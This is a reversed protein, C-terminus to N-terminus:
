NIMVMAGKLALQGAASVNATANGKVNVIEAEVSAQTTGKASFTLGELALETQAKISVRNGSITIDGAEDIEFKADGSQVAIPTGATTKVDVRDAGVRVITAGDATKLLVHQTTPELGDGLEIVHGLRSTIRRYSVKGDDAVLKKDAALANKTSYLGGLVVPHRTDGGEFGVLVEDNVEPQFVTGRAQGGGLAVVRAWASEVQAVTGAYKVKIRGENDPDRINSVRAVLLGGIAFGADPPTGGLTDVLGAPRIPGAVFRTYFGDARYIHQVESVVYSGSAPGANEVHVKIMPAIAANVPGTGRAVVAGAQWESFLATALTTAEDMNKPNDDGAKHEGDILTVGPKTGLYDNVFQSSATAPPAEDGKVGHAVIDQQALRDWGYVSVQAPRLGSARVSFDTLEAGLSAAVDGVSQAADRVLFTKDQVWWVCGARRCMKDVFALDTGSKLLYEHVQRGGTMTVDATLGARKILTQAADMFTFHLFTEATTGVTMRYGLDDVTVVLEPHASTSQELSTGTVVGSFLPAGDSVAIAVLEGLQFLSKGSLAYGPDAFRLTARGVVGLGCDIRMAVLSDTWPRPLAKGAVKVAPASLQLRETFATM